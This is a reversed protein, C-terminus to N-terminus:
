ETGGSQLLNQDGTDQKSAALHLETETPHPKGDTTRVMETVVVSDHRIRTVRGGKKGVFSNRRVMYGVGHPDEVMAVPNSMGSIVGVLKLQDLDWHCLPADCAVTGAVDGHGSAVLDQLPDRFPDRKGSPIYSYTFAPSADAKAVPEPAPKAHKPAPRVAATHPPPAGGCAWLSTSIVALLISRRM